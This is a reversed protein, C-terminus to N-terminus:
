PERRQNTTTGTVEKSATDWNVDSHKLPGRGFTFPILEGHSYGQYFRRLRKVREEGTIPEHCINAGVKRGFLVAGVDVKPRM